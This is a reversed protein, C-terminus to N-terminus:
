CLDPLEALLTYGFVSRHQGWTGMFRAREEITIEEHQENILSEWKAAMENKLKELKTVRIGVKQALHRRILNKWEYNDPIRLPTPFIASGPNRILASISFSHMTSALEVDTQSTSLKKSLEATAARTFTLFKIRPIPDRSALEQALAVATTSKGTGPGALLRGHQFSPHRLIMKQEDTFPFPSPSPQSHSM